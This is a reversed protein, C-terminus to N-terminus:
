LKAAPRLTSHVARAPPLPFVASIRTRFRAWTIGKQSRRGLSRKWMVEVVNRFRQLMWANGTIGYYAFHGNLKQSLAKHQEPLPRHMAKRCWEAIAKLGRKFRSKATKRKIVWYGRRSKAWFHTFGLLDFSGKALPRFEVIQSKDPHVTLGYKGARRGLALMLREADEKASCGIVFDDAFRVLFARGYLRPEATRKFWTDLVEHLFINALIPSVVGGQPTGTEPYTVVGEESVGANLWKGILRLLVGDRVRQRIVEVLRRKDITDFFKRFDVEVVWGGGMNMMQKWFSELAQHASRKPRFGYSCDLFDQEYIPELAMVVARQLIKDELTPIGIPRTTKGDGKPIHVRRVPPAVYRGSKARDLLSQLNEDLKEGYEEWTQRDVGVAGDKRTKQYADKLWNIDINHSLTTFVMSPRRKALEAIRRQRTSISELSLTGTMKGESSDTIGVRGERRLTGRPSNGQRAPVVARQSEKGGM